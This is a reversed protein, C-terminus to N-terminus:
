HECQLVIVLIYISVYQLVQMENELDDIDEKGLKATEIVGIAVPVDGRYVGRYVTKYGGSGIKRGMKLDDLSIEGDAPPEASGLGSDCSPSGHTNASFLAKKGKGGASDTDAGDDNQEGDEDDLGLGALDPLSKSGHEALM